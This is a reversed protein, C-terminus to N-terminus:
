VVGIFWDILLYIVFCTQIFIAIDMLSLLFRRFAYRSPLSFRFPRSIRISFPIEYFPIKDVRSIRRLTSSIRFLARFGYDSIPCFSDIYYLVVTM